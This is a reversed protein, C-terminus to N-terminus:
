FIFSNCSSTVNPILILLMGFDWLQYISKSCNLNCKPGKHIMLSRQVCILLVDLGDPMSMQHSSNKKESLWVSLSDQFTVVGRAQNSSQQLRLLPADQQLIHFVNKTTHYFSRHLKLMWALFYKLCASLLSLSPCLLLGYLSLSSFILAGETYERGFYWAM